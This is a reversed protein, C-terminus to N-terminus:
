ESDLARRALDKDNTISAPKMKRYSEWDFIIAKGNERIRDKVSPSLSGAMEERTYNAILITPREASYRKDLLNCIIRNEWESGGREQFEDIVLLGASELQGLVKKESTGSNNQAADRLDLFIDMARRYLATQHRVSHHGNWAKADLPWKGARAVEAAMQTKGPGRGGLFAVIGCKEVASKADEFASLWKEGSLPIDRTYREGWGHNTSVNYRITVSRAEDTPAIFEPASEILRTLGDITSVVHNATDTNM